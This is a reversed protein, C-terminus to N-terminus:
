QQWESHAIAVISFVDRLDYFGAAAIGHIRAALAHSNPLHAYCDVATVIISCRRALLLKYTM